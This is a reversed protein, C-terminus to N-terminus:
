KAYQAVLSIIDAVKMNINLRNEPVDIGYKKDLAALVKIALLSDVGLDYFLNTEPTIRGPDVRIVRAIIGIIEKEDIRM